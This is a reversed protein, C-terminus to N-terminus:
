GGNRLLRRIPASRCGVESQRWDKCCLRAARDPLAGAAGGSLLGLSGTISTLPTRLEHSVTAVFETKMREVHKADTLDRGIAIFNLGGPEPSVTWDISTWEGATTAIRNEFRTPKGTRAMAEIAAFSIDADDPHMFNLYPTALLHAEPWGLLTTWAPNVASMHGEFNARALLDETLVWLRNRESAEAERLAREALIQVSTEMCACFLGAVAGSEDRVPTYSFTFHAENPKGPRDLFLEIDDMHIAQGASVQQFLPTLDARVEPWVDFFARGLSQPHRDALIAAYSDNYLLIHDPGWGVFMPQDAGLMVGVLTKLPLPWMSPPGLPTGTWDMSRFLADMAGGGTLFSVHQMSQSTDASTTM